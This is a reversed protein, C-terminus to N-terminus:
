VQIVARLATELDKHLFEHDHAQLRQPEVRVSALVLEDAMERGLMMRLAFRPTSVRTPRQLVKGLTETFEANTVPNPAVANYA